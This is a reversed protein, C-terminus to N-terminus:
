WTGSSTIRYVRVTIMVGAAQGMIVEVFVDQSALTWGEGGMTTM